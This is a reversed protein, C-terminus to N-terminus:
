LKYLKVFHSWFAENVRGYIVQSWNISGESWAKLVVYNTCKAHRFVMYWPSTSLESVWDIHLRDEKQWLQWSKTCMPKCVQFFLKGHTDTKSFPFPEDINEIWAREKCIVKYKYLNSGESFRAKLMCLLSVSYQRLSSGSALIKILVATRHVAMKDTFEFESVIWGEGFQVSRM